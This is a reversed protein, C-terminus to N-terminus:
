SALLSKLHFPGDNRIPRENGAKALVVKLRPL